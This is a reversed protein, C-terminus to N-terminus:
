PNVKAIRKRFHERWAASLGPLEVARRLRDRDVDGDLYLAFIEAVTMADTAAPTVEIRDGAAIPGERVVSLYFGPRGAEEFRKVVEQSGMRIGLKFCPLRPQTVVFEAPGIRLRDGIRLEREVVGETTLNEGFAGWPLETPPVRGRWFAYHESPYGYVAKDAGGHVSLDSQQDGDLNLRRAMVPGPVPAKFISTRVLRGRWEVERPQGVNISILKL